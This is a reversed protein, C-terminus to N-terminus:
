KKYINLAWDYDSDGISHTLALKKALKPKAYKILHNIVGQETGGFDAQYWVYIKSVVLEDGKFYVGRHSNVYAKAGKNLMANLKNASYAV